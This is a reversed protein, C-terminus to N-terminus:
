IKVVPKYQYTHSGKNKHSAEVQILRQKRHQHLFFNLQEKYFYQFITKM